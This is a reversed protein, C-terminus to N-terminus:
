ATRKAKKSKGHGNTPMWRPYSDKFSVKRKEFVYSKGVLDDTDSVGCEQMAPILLQDVHMARLKQTFMDGEAQAIAAPDEIAIDMYVADYGPYNKDEGAEINILRGQFKDPILDLRAKPVFNENLAEITTM